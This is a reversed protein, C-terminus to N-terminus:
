MRSPAGAGAAGTADAAPMAAASSAGAGMLAAGPVAAGGMGGASLSALPDLSVEREAIAVRQTVAISEYFANLDAVYGTLAELVSAFGVRGVRYQAMTSAVSAESQVLLGGRFLQNTERLAALLTQREEVRERLMQRTAEAGREAATGRQRNEEVARAQKSGAWLPIAFSLGAQWMPSFKGFRPMVAASLTLDPFYDKAALDVLRNSQETALRWKQLEPSQAEAQAFAVADSPLAPDPLDALSRATDISEGLAHGRLRNLAAVRRRQEAELAWRRQRLRSKELQARLLDSQAGEGAEYRTRALGEAQTWLAELKGLLGLEDRVLLLDVYAREVAGRISLRLRALDAEAQAAALSTVDGRLDRKGYWPFTQSAMVSLYSTEMEGIQISRFGDNQIGLSLMPDPLASAQPVREHDARITAQAQAVEPREELADKVLRALLPDDVLAPAALATKAEQAWASRGAVLFLAVGFSALRVGAKRTVTSRLSM